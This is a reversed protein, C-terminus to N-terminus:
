TKPRARRLRGLRLRRLRAEREMQELLASMRSLLEDNALEVVHPTPYVTIIEVGAKEAAAFFDGSVVVKRSFRDLSVAVAWRCWGEGFAEDLWRLYEGAASNGPEGSAIVLRPRRGEKECYVDLAALQELLQDHNATASRALLIGDGNSDLITQASKGVSAELVGYREILVEAAVSQQGDTSVAISADKAPSGAVEPHGHILNNATETM